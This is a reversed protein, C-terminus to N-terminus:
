AQAKQAVEQEVAKTQRNLKHQSKIGVKSGGWEKRIDVNDNFEKKCLQKM